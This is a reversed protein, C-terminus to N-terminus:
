RLPAADQAALELLHILEQAEVSDDELRVPEAMASIGVIDNFQENEQIRRMMEEALEPNERLM